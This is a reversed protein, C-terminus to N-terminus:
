EIEDLLVSEPELLDAAGRELDLEFHCRPDSLPRKSNPDVATDIRPRRGRECSLLLWRHDLRIGNGHGVEDGPRDGRGFPGAQQEVRM